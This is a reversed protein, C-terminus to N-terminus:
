LIRLLARRAAELAAGFVLHSLLSYLHTSPPSLWPPGALGLAPVLTEDAVVAVAGGFPMGLGATVWPEVEAAVGYTAGLATGFGYHVANGARKKEGGRLPRGAVREAAKETSPEGGGGSDSAGLQSVLKQFRNMAFSAFAGAVAGAIAGRVVSHSDMPV